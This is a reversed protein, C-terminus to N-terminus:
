SWFSSLIAAACDGAICALSVVAATTVASFFRYQSAVAVESAMKWSM